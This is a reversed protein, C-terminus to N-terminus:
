RLVLSSERPPVKVYLMAWAAVALLMMGAASRVDFGSRLLVIGELATFLPVLLYRAAFRTPSVARLLWLLLLLLPLDFALATAANGALAQPGLGATRHRALAIAAFFLANACGIAALAEALHFRPLLRYLELTAFAAFVVSVFLAANWAANPWTGPASVPLLIVAGAVGALAPVMSPQIESDGAYPALIVVVVPLLAFCAASTTGSLIGHSADILAVPLGLLLVGSLALRGWPRPSQTGRRRTAAVAAALIAIVAYHMSQAAVVPLRSPWAADVLWASAWLLCLALMGFTQRATM